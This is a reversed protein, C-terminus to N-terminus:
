AALAVDGRRPVLHPIRWRALELQAAVLLDILDLGLARRIAALIESSPEKRGREVESLYGVSVGAAKAVDKLDRGQEQRAQRLCEGIVWRLLVLGGQVVSRGLDV